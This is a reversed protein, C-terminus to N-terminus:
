VETCPHQWTALGGAGVGVGLGVGAEVGVSGEAQKPVPENSSICGAGLVWGRLSDM